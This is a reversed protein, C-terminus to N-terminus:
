TAGLFLPSVFWPLKVAILRRCSTTVAVFIYPLCSRLLATPSSASIIPYASTSVRNNHPCVSNNITSYATGRFVAKHYSFYQLILIVPPFALRSGWGLFKHGAFSSASLKFQWAVKDSISETRYLIILCSVLFPESHYHLILASIWATLFLM